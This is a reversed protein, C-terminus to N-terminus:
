FSKTWIVALGLPVPDSIIQEHSLDYYPGENISGPLPKFTQFMDMPIFNYDTGLYAGLWGKIEVIPYNPTKNISLMFESDPMLQQTSQWAPDFNNLGNVTLFWGEFRTVGYTVGEFSIIGKISLNYKQKAYMAIPLGASHVVLTVNKGKLASVTINVENAADYLSGSTINGHAWDCDFITINNDEATKHLSALVNTNNEVQSPLGQFGHVVVWNEETQASAQIVLGLLVILAIWIGKVLSRRNRKWILVLM